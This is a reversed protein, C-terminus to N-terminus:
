RAGWMAREAAQAAEQHAPELLHGYVDSTIRISSHGLTESVVKLPVGMALVISAASHRMEHPGGRGIGTGPVPKGNDDLDARTGATMRYTVNKFNDPDVAKGFPTRFVLDVGMPLATWEPGAHLREGLQRTRHSRLAAAVPAPLYLTRRSLRPKPQDIHLGDPLRKLSRNVTLKAPDEDLEVDPWSLGLTEGRRLGLSLMVAWAAYLRHDAVHDLFTRPQVPTLTRGERAPVRVGDAIRAVNRM